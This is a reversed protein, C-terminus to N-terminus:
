IAFPVVLSIGVLIKMWLPMPVEFPSVPGFADPEGTADIAQVRVFYQRPPLHRAELEPGAVVENLVIHAFAADTAIQVRYRESERAAWRIRQVQSSEVITTATLSAPRQVFSRVESWPGAEDRENRAAVRWVYEGAPLAGESTHATAASLTDTIMETFQADRAVQLQYNVATPVTSWSFQVSGALQRQSAAPTALTPAAPLLHHTLAVTADTGEIGRADIGRARLWYAGERPFGILFVPTAGSADNLITQFQADSALQVRYAAADALPPLQLTFSAANQLPAVSGLDPAPLLAVAPLPATNAEIRTGFGAPVPVAAQDNAVQVVGELTETIAHGGQEAFSARFRTGRVASVAVPTRIEFRGVDRTPKVETELRGGDLQLRTSHGDTVGDVRQLQEITLESDKQLTVLSGDALRLTLSGDAGTALRAGSQVSAGVVAPAGDHSANGSVATVVANEATLRLWSYPIRLPTDPPINFPNAIGNRRQLEPWRRPDILLRRSVHILTDRAQFRYIFEPDAPASQAFAAATGICAVLLALLKVATLQAPSHTKM